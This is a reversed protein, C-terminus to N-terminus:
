AQRCNGKKRRHFAKGGRKGRSAVRLYVDIGNESYCKLWQYVSRRSYKVIKSIEAPYRVKGQKILLLTKVRSKQRMNDQIRLLYNLQEESEKIHVDITKAM